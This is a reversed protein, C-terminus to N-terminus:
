NQEHNPRVVPIQPQPLITLYSFHPFTASNLQVPYGHSCATQFSVGLMDTDPYKLGFGPQTQWSTLLQSYICDESFRNDSRFISNIHVFKVYLLKIHETHFVPGLDEEARTELVM